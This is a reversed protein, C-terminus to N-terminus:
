GSLAPGLTIFEAHVLQPGQINAPAFEPIVSPASHRDSLM